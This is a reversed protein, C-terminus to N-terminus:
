EKSPASLAAFDPLYAESDGAKWRRLLEREIQLVREINKEDSNAPVFSNVRVNLDRGSSTKLDRYCADMLKLEASSYRAFKHRLDDESHRREEVAHRQEDAERQAARQEPTTTACGAM